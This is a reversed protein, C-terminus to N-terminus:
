QADEERLFLYALDRETVRDNAYLGHKVPIEVRKPSRKWTKVKGSVRWRRPTGDSNKKGKQYITQGYKLSKAEELTM